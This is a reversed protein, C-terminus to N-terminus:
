AADHRWIDGTGDGDEAKMKQREYPRQKGRGKQAAASRV